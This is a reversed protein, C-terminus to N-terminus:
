TVVLSGQTTHLITGPRGSANAYFTCTFDRQGPPVETGWWDVTSILATSALTFDDAARNGPSLGSGNLTSSNAASTGGFDADPLQQYILQARAGPLWVGPLVLLLALVFAFRPLHRHRM